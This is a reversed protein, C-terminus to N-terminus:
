WNRSAVVKQRGAFKFKARRLAEAAQLPSLPLAHTDHSHALQTRCNPLWCRLDRGWPAIQARPLAPGARLGGRGWAFRRVAGDWEGCGRAPGQLPHVDPDPRDGRARVRGTHPPGPAFALACCDAPARPRASSCLLM